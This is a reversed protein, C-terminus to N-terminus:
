RVSQNEGLGRIPDLNVQLACIAELVLYPHDEILADMKSSTSSEDFPLPGFFDVRLEAEQCEIRQCGRM